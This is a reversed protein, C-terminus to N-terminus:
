NDRTNQSPTTRVPDPRTTANSDVPPLSDNVSPDSPAPSVMEQETSETDDTTTEGCGVMLFSALLLASFSKLLISKRLVQKM